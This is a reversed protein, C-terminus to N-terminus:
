AKPFISIFYTHKYFQIETPWMLSNYDSLSSGCFALM